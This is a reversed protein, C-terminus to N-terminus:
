WNVVLKDVTGATSFTRRFAHSTVLPLGLKECCAALLDNLHRVDTIPDIGATPNRAIWDFPSRCKEFFAALHRLHKNCAQAGFRLDDPLRRGLDSRPRPMVDPTDRM